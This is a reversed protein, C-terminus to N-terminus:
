DVLLLALVSVLAALGIGAVWSSQALYFVALACAVAPIWGAVLGIWFGLTLLTVGWVLVLVGGAAVVAIALSRQERAYSGHERLSPM